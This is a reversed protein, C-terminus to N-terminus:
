ECLKLLQQYVPQLEQMQLENERRIVYRRTDDVSREGWSVCYHMACRFAGMALDGGEAIWHRLERPALPALRQSLELDKAMMSMIEMCVAGASQGAAEIARADGEKMARRLPGRAKVDEDILQVMYKRLIESNRRIYDLDEGEGPCAKAARELLAAAQAATQAAASGSEARSEPDALAQTFEEAEMKRFIQISIKQEAM